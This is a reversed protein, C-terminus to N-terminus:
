PRLSNRSIKKDSWHTLDKIQKKWEGNFVSTYANGLFAALKVKKEKCESELENYLRICDSENKCIVINFSYPSKILLKNRYVLIQKMNYKDDSGICILNNYIWSFDKREHRPDKGFVWFTEELDIDVRDHIKWVDSDGEYTIIEGDENKLFISKPAKVDKKLLFVEYNARVLKGINIYRIPFRVNSSKERITELIKYIGDETSSHGLTKINRGNSILALRYISKKSIRGM